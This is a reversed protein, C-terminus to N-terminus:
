KRVVVRRSVVQGSSSLRLYYSSSALASVDLTNASGSLAGHMVSHGLLDYLDYLVWIPRNGALTVSLKGDTPNPVISQVEFNLNGQRLFQQITSDGCLLDISYITSSIDAILTCAYSPDGGNLSLNSMTLPSSDSDALSVSFVLSVFAKTPDLTMNNGRLHLGLTTMNKSAQQTDVSITAGPIATQPTVYNLLDSYYTVSVDLSDFGKNLIVQDPYLNLVTLSGARGASPTMVSKLHAQIPPLGVLLNVSDIAQLKSLMCDHFTVYNNYNVDQIVISATTDSIIRSRFRVHLLVSDPLIATGVRRVLKFFAWDGGSSDISASWGNCAFNSEYQLLNSDYAIRVNLSDVPLVTPYNIPTSLALDFTTDACRSNTSNSLRMRPAHRYEPASMWIGTDVDSTYGSACGYIIGNKVYCRSADWTIMGCISDWSAGTDKSIYFHANHGGGDPTGQTYIIGDDWELDSQTQFTPVLSKLYWNVGGDDSRWLNTAAVALFTL